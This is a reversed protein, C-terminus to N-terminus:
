MVPKGFSARDHEFYVEGGTILASIATIGSLSREFRGRAIDAVLRDLRYRAGRRGLETGGIASLKGVDTGSRDAISGSINCQSARSAVPMKM